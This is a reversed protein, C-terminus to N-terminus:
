ILVNGDGCGCDPFMVMLVDEEFYAVLRTAQVQLTTQLIYTIM